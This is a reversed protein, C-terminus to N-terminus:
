YDKIELHYEVRCILKGVLLFVKKGVYNEYYSLFIDTYLMICSM